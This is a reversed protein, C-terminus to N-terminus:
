GQRKRVAVVAAVGLLMLAFTGPEPVAAAVDGSRVVLTHHGFDKAVLGQQGSYTVFVWADSPATASDAGLWYVDDLLNKFPGTNVLGYSYSNRINGAADFVSNNGLTVHFLHALESSATNVNFGCDTGSYAFNCGPAGTDVYSPLRWGTVGNVNLATAWAKAADWGMRGDTWVVDGGYANGPIVGGSATKSSVAYNADALWTINLDTDYYAEYGNATNGDLDRGQLSTEWTGYVSYGVAHAQPLVAAIAAVALTNRLVHVWRGHCLREAFISLM